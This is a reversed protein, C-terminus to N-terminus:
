IREKNGSKQPCFTNRVDRVAEEEVWITSQSSEALTELTFGRYTRVAWKLVCDELLWIAYPRRFPKLMEVAKDFSVHPM